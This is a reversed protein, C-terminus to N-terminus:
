GLPNEKKKNEEEKKDAEIKASSKGAPRVRFRGEQVALAAEKAMREKLGNVSGFKEKIANMVESRNLNKVGLLERVSPMGQVTIEYRKDGIDHYVSETSATIRELFTLESSFNPDLAADLKMSSFGKIQDNLSTQGKRSEMYDSLNKDVRMAEM